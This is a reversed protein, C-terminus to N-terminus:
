SRDNNTVSRKEGLYATVVSPNNQIESPKGEAIKHGFNLVAIRESIDMVVEMDHEIMIITMETEEHVDIIFRALDEKEEKTMGAIPEDLLLLEPEAALARGLEVRKQAGFPLLGVVQKRIAEMELFEIIKEVKKRNAIEERKTKGFWVASSLVGSNILFHRGLSINEIVTMHKFLEVNQFTRAIGLFARKHPKLKLLDTGKFFIDGEQPKYVGNICNLISTKGAGNPGIIALLEGRNISLNFDNIAVIGGFELRLNKIELLSMM